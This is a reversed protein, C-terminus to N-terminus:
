NYVAMTSTKNIIFFVSNILTARCTYFTSVDKIPKIEM